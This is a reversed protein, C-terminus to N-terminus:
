KVLLTNLIKDQLVFKRLVDSADKLIDEQTTNKLGLLKCAKDMAMAETLDEFEFIYKTLSELKMGTDKLNGLYNILWSLAYFSDKDYEILATHKPKVPLKNYPSNLIEKTQYNITYSNKRKNDKLQILGNLAQAYISLWRFRRRLEHLEDELLTLTFNNKELLIVIDEIEETLAIKLEHLYAKNYDNSYEDLKEIFSPVRKNLWDKETLRKNCKEICKNAKDTVKSIIVTNIKKNIKFEQEIWLYYDIEGFVDEMKKFRKHWKSFLKEDFSKDHLRTLGELMFFLTRAGNKHLWLAPNKQKAAETLHNQLQSCYFIFPNFDQTKMLKM